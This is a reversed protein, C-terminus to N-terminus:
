KLIIFGVVVVFVFVVVSQCNSLLHGHKNELVM